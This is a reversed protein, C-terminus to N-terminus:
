FYYTAGLTFQGAGLEQNQMGDVSTTPAVAGTGNVPVDVPTTMAADKNQDVHIGRFEAQLAFQHWRHEVGIGFMAHPRRLDDRLDKPTDKDAILTSGFGAMLYWNWHHQPRFNFRAGLTVMDLALNGDVNDGNADEITQRGGTFALMIELRRTARFRLNLEATNFNTESGDPADQPKVSYGGVQLGVAFRDAMPNIPPAPAVVVVPAVPATEGPPQAYGEGPAQAFASTGLAPVIALALLLRTM